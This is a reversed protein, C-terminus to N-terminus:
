DFEKITVSVTLDSRISVDATVAVVITSEREELILPGILSSDPPVSYRNYVNVMEFDGKLPLYIKRQGSPVVDKRASARSDGWAFRQGENPARGVLRWTIVQPLANPVLRGYLREYESEFSKLLRDATAQSVEEFPLTVAIEAGQGAYRMDVGIIWEVTDAGAAELEAQSEHRLDALNQAVTQWDVDALLQPNSWARDVRAPAALMGLCSGAGAAIPILVRPIRLKRAVEVAHVPGAGGTAIMTFDRPDLGNEAIHIRAASAMNENVVNCIGWTAELPSVKLDTALKAVAQSANAVDLKMEGGLFNDPSLYGLLLDADTVTPETGGRGYCAPGPVSGSSEPGINLLGLRNCHAISGGGAGIEILEISPILIPLGSGRRFRKVRACEFSHAIPAEGGVAVCAKATTGGMDFALVQQVDNQRATNLASMVGAAPGSELLLIPSEAGAEASSFGGSSVMVRLPVNEKIAAIRANLENLYNSVLPKVYANAAVTSTREYEKIERALDSSLSVFMGPLAAKIQAAIEKEHDPNVYSHLLSVAVSTVNLSRLEDVVRQAEAATLPLLKEGRADLRESVEIRDTEAILPKPLEIELDYIDYRWERGIDLVDRMGSTTVLASRAGKREILTNTILTTGHVVEALPPSSSEADAYSAAVQRLLDRIVTSVAEGPDDPTTPSKAVWIRGAPLLGAVGDTFTGGIDVAVRLINEVKVQKNM